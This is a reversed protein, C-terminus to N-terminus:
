QRMRGRRKKGREGKARHNLINGEEDGDTRRKEQVQLGRGSRSDADVTYISEVTCLRMKSGIENSQLFYRLIPYM